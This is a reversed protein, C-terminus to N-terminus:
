DEEASKMWRFERQRSLLWTEDSDVAFNGRGWSNKLPTNVTKKTAKSGFSYASLSTADTMTTMTRTHTSTSLATVSGDTSGRRPRQFLAEEADLEGLDLPGDPQLKLRRFMSASREMHVGWLGCYIRDGADMGIKRSAVFSGSAAEFVLV